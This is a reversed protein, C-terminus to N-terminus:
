NWHRLITTRCGNVAFLDWIRPKKHSDAANQLRWITVSNTEMQFWVWIVCVFGGNMMQERNNRNGCKATKM